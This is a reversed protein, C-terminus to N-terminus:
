SNTSSIAVTIPYIVYFCLILVTSNIKVPTYDCIEKRKAEDDEAEKSDDDGNAENQVHDHFPLAEM